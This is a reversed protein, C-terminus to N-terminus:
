NQQTKETADTRDHRGQMTPGTTAQRDERPIGTNTAGTMMTMDNSDAQATQRPKGTRAPEVTTTREESVVKTVTGDHCQNDTTTAM